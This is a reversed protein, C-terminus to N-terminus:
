LLGGGDSRTDQQDLTWVEFPGEARTAGASASDGVGFLLGAILAGVALVRGVPMLRFRVNAAM